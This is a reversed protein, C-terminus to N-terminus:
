PRLDWSGHIPHNKRSSFRSHQTTPGEPCSIRFVACILGRCIKMNKCSRLTEQNHRVKSSAASKMCAATAPHFACCSAREQQPWEPPVEAFLCVLGQPRRHIRSSLKPLIEHEQFDGGTESQIFPLKVGTM